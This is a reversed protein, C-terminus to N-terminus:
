FYMKLLFIDFFRNKKTQMKNKKPNGLILWEKDGTKNRPTTTGPPTTHGNNRVSLPSKTLKVPRLTCPKAGPV